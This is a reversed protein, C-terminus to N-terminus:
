CLYSEKTEKQLIHTLQSGQSGLHDTALSGDIHSSNPMHGM